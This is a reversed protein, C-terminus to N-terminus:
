DGQLTLTVRRHSSKGLNEALAFCDLRNSLVEPPQQRDQNPTFRSGPLAEHGSQNVALAGAGGAGEHVHITCGNRLGKNFGLEEAVLTTSKCVCSPALWPQELCRM